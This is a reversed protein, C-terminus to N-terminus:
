AFTNEFIKRLQHGLGRYNNNSAYLRLGVTAHAIRDNLTLPTIEPPSCFKTQNKQHEVRLYAKKHESIEMKVSNDRNGGLYDLFVKIKGFINPSSLKRM